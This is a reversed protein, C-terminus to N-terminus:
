CSAPQLQRRRPGTSARSPATALTSLCTPTSSTARGFRGTRCALLRVTTLVRASLPPESLRTPLHCLSLTVSPPRSPSLLSVRPSSRLSLSSLALSLAVYPSLLALLLPISLLPPPTSLLLSPSFSLPYSLLLSPSLSPSRALPAPTHFISWGRRSPGQTTRAAQLVRPVQAGIIVAAHCTLVHARRAQPSRSSM